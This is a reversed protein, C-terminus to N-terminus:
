RAGDHRCPGAQPPILPPRNFADADGHGRSAQEGQGQERDSGRRGLGLRRCCGTRLRGRRRGVDQLDRRDLVGELAQGGAHRRARAHPHRIATRLYVLEDDHADGIVDGLRELLEHRHLAVRHLEPEDFLDALHREERCGARRRFAAQGELPFTAVHGDAEDRLAQGVHGEERVKARIGIWRGHGGLQLGDHAVRRM